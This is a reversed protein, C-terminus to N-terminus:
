VDLAVLVYRQRCPSSHKFFFKIKELSLLTILEIIKSSIETLMKEGLAGINPVLLVGM